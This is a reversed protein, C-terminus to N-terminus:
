NNIATQFTKLQRKAAATFDPMGYDTYNWIESKLFQIMARAETDTFTRIGGNTPIGEDTFRSRWDEALKKSIRIQYTM